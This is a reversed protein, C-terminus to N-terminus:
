KLILPLWTIKEQLSGAFGPSRVQGCERCVCDDLSHFIHEVIVNAVPNSRLARTNKTKVSRLGVVMVQSM